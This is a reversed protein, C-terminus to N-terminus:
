KAAQIEAVYEDIQEKIRVPDLEVEEGTEPDLPHYDDYIQDEITYHRVDRWSASGHKDVDRHYMERARECQHELLPRDEFLRRIAEKDTEIDRDEGKRHGLTLAERLIGENTSPLSSM